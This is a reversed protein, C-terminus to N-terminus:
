GDWYHDGFMRKDVAENELSCSLFFNLSPFFSALHCNKLGLDFFSLHLPHYKYVELYEARRQLPPCFPSFSDWDTFCQSHLRSVQTSNRAGSVSLPLWSPMFICDDYHPFLCNGANHHNLKPKSYLHFLNVSLSRIGPFDRGWICVHFAASSEVQCQSETEVHMDVHEHGVNDCICPMMYLVCVHVNIYVCMCVFCM